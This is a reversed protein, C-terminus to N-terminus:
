FVPTSLSLSWTHADSVLTMGRFPSLHPGVLLFTAPAGRDHPLNGQPRSSPAQLLPDPMPVLLLLADLGPYSLTCTCLLCLPTWSVLKVPGAAPQPHPSFLSSGAM